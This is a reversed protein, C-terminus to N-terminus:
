RIGVQQYRMANGVMDGRVVKLAVRRDLKPDYAVYVISMGGRGLESLVVYRGLLAGVSRKRARAVEALTQTPEDHVEAPM